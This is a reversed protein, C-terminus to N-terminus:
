TRNELDKSKTMVSDLKLTLPKSPNSGGDDAYVVLGSVEKKQEKSKKKVVKSCKENEQKDIASEEKSQAILAIQSIESTLPPTNSNNVGVQIWQTISIIM